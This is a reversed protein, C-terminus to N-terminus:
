SYGTVHLGPVYPRRILHLHFRPDRADVLAEVLPGAERAGVFVDTADHDVAARRLEPGVARGRATDLRRNTFVPEFRAAPAIREVRGAIRREVTGEAMAEHRAYEGAEAPPLWGKARLYSVDNRPVVAVAVVEVDTPGAFEVAKRLAGRALPSDDYAVM